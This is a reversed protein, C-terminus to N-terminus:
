ESGLSNPDFSKVAGAPAEIEDRQKAVENRVSTIDIVQGMKAENAAVKGLTTDIDQVGDPAEVEFEAPESPVGEGRGSLALKMVALSVLEGGAWGIATGGVLWGLKQTRAAAIAGGSVAGIVPLGRRVLDLVFQGASM